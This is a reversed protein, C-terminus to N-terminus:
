PETSISPSAFSAVLGTRAGLNKGNLHEGSVQYDVPFHLIKQRAFACTLPDFLRGFDTVPNSTVPHLCTELIPTSLIIGIMLIQDNSRRTYPVYFSMMTTSFPISYLIRIARTVM